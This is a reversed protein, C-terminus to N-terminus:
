VTVRCASLSASGISSALPLKTAAPSSASPRWQALHSSGKRLGAERKAMTAPLGFLSALAFAILPLLGIQCILGVAVAQRHRFVRRFDDLVLGLGLSFIIFALALPLLANLLPNM